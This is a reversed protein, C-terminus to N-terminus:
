GGSRAEVVEGQAAGAGRRVVDLLGLRERFLCYLGLALIPVLTSLHDVIAVAKARAPELGPVALLLGAVAPVHFQGVAAPTLPVLIAVAVLSLVVFPAYWPFAVDFAALVAATALVDAGWSALSWALAYALDAGSRFVHLGEAFGELLRALREGLAPWTGGFAGRVLRLVPERRVYLVGLLFSTALVGLALAFGAGRLLAGSIAIPATNGFTGPAFTGGADRALALAAVGLVTLLGIVDNVRDLAVLAISRAVPIRELRSLVVARVVEGLRAPVTFNVLVGIQTASFLSRWPAPHVARVVYIWRQVRAFYSAWLALQAAALWGLDAGRIARLLDGVDTGRLLLALLAVALLLGLIARLV